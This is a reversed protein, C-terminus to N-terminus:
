IIGVKKKGVASLKSINPETLYAKERLDDNTKRKSIESGLDSSTIWQSTSFTTQNYTEETLGEDKWIAFAEANSLQRLELIDFTRGKRLLATDVDELNRNTTIIFKTPNKNVGDTFSLLNNIFSDKENELGTSVTQKRAGLFYDLDDLIVLDTGGLDHWFQDMSLISQNKVYKVIYQDNDQQLYQENALLYKLYTTALKSKGLGPEGLLVLINEDYQIFQDFLNEINLYPYYLDNVTLLDKTELVKYSNSIQNKEDLYVTEYLITATSESPTFFKYIEFIKHIDAYSSTYATLIYEDGNNLGMNVLTKDNEEDILMISTNTKSIEFEYKTLNFESLAEVFKDYDKKQITVGSLSTTFKSVHKDLLFDHIDTSVYNVNGKLVRDEIAPTENQTKM